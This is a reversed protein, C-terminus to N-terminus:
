APGGAYSLRCAVGTHDSLRGRQDSAPWDRVSELSLRGNTAIHDIHPGYSLTGATHITWGALVERLREAVAIPQRGRPVRQNFDGTIVTPLVDELGALVEALQDLYELHESWPQADSRGTRVHADRWPICVGIVRLRGEPTAATAVALRGHTAGGVSVADCSLPYRSWVIVKRRSPQSGYGWDSGAEVVSGSAPLLARVGETVVLIDAAANALVASIRAGRDSSPTAWEANWTAVVVSM